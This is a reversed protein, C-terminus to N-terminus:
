DRWCDKECKLGLMIQELNLCLKEYDGKAQTVLAPNTIVKAEVM